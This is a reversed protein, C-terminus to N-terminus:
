KKNKDKFLEMIHTIDSDSASMLGKRLLDLQEKKINLEEINLGKEKALRKIILILSEDPLNLLKELTNKDLTM